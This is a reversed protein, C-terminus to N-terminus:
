DSPENGQCGAGVRLNGLSKGFTVENVYCFADNGSETSLFNWPSYSSQALFDPHLGFVNRTTFRLRVSVKRETEIIPQLEM